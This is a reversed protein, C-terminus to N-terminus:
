YHHDDYINDREAGVGSSSTVTLSAIFGSDFPPESDADREARSVLQARTFKRSMVGKKAMPGAFTNATSSRVLM